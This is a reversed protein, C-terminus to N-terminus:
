RALRPVTEMAMKPCTGRARYAGGVRPAARDVCGPRQQERRREGGETWGSVSTCLYQPATRFGGHLALTRPLPAMNARPGAWRETVAAHLGGPGWRIM